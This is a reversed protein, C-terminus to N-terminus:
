IAPAAAVIRDLSEWSGGVEGSLADDIVSRARELCDEARWRGRTLRIRNQAANMVDRAVLLGTLAMASLAVTVWLAALLAFGRRRM